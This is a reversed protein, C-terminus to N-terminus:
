TGRLGLVVNRLPVVVTSTRYRWCAWDAEPPDVEAGFLQPKALSARCVGDNDAKERQPSRTVIGIRIGRVRPLTAANLAAFAGTADQWAELTTSGAAAASIGYQARVGVVNRAIVADAAGAQLPRQLVLTDGVRVYRNWRVQGLLTIRDQAAFAPAMSFAAQNHLAGAQNAFSLQQPVDPTSATVATVTRVLCPAASPPTAPAPALLVAQGVAAPLFSSLAAADGASAAQLRVNAGSEIRDGYVIDVSDGNAGATIRVPVFATGNVPVAADVSLALNQCLYSAEGFFGLGALAVDNKLAALAGDAGLVAGGVGVGQRQAATFVIASGAAALGVLMSVVIGVMLEVISLGRQRRRPIM